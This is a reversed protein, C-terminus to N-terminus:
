NRQLSIWLLILSFWGLSENQNLQSQVWLSLHNLLCNRVHWMVNIMKFFKLLVNVKGTISKVCLCIYLLLGTTPATLCNLFTLPWLLLPLCKGQKFGVVSFETKSPESFEFSYVDCVTVLSDLFFFDNGTHTLLLTFHFAFAFIQHFISTCTLEEALFSVVM